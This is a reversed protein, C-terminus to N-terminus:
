KRILQWPKTEGSASSQVRTATAGLPSFPPPVRPPICINPTFAFCFGTRGQDQIMRTVPPLLAILESARADGNRAALDLSLWSPLASLVFPLVTM